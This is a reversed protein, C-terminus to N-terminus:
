ESERLKCAYFYAMKYDGMERFCIELKEAARRPFAKEAKQYQEAARAHQGLALYGEGLAFQGRPTLVGESTLIRVCLEPQNAALAAEARLIREPESDPLRSVIEEALEPSVQGLLLLRRREMDPTYHPTNEGAVRARELLERAYISKGSQVAQEAVSLLSLAELLREVEQNSSVSEEGLFYGMPKGLQGALYRLTEMSPKASGNEIQSLMNRTVFDGCLQRQSLGKELRAQRLLQGIQM